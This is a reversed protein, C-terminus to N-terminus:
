YGALARLVADRDVMGLLRGQGDAVVLRKAQREVLLRVVEALPTDASLTFVEKKM